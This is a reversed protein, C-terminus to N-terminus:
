YIYKKEKKELDISLGQFIWEENEKHPTYIFSPAIKERNELHSMYGLLYGSRLEAKEMIETTLYPAYYLIKEKNEEDNFFMPLYIFDLHAREFTWKIQMYNDKILANIQEDFQNEVYIVQRVEPEFPLYRFAINFKM